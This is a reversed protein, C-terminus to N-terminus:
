LRLLGTLKSVVPCASCYCPAGRMNKVGAQRQSGSIVVQGDQVSLVAGVSSRLEKWKQLLFRKAARPPHLTETHPAATQHHRLEVSHGGCVSTAKRHFDAAGYDEKSAFRKIPVELLSLWCHKTHKRSFPSQGLNSCNSNPARHHYIMLHQPYGIREEKFGASPTM